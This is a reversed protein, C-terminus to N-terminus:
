HHLLVRATTNAVNTTTDCSSRFICGSIVILSRQNKDPGIEVFIQPPTNVKGHKKYAKAYVTYILAM